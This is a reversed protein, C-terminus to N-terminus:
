INIETQRFAGQRGSATLISCKIKCKKQGQEKQRRIKKWYVLMYFMLSLNFLRTTFIVVNRFKNYINSQIIPVTFMNFSVEADQSSCSMFLSLRTCYSWSCSRSYKLWNLGKFASNYGMQWKSGKNPPWRIKWMLMILTLMFFSLKKYSPWM